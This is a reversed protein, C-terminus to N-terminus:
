PCVEGFVSLVSLVDSITVAGDGTVDTDFASLCTYQSFILPIDSIAFSGNPAVDGICGVIPDSILSIYEDGPLYEVFQFFLVSM